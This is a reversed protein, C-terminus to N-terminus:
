NQGFVLESLEEDDLLSHKIFASFASEPSSLVRMSEIAAQKKQPTADPSIYDRINNNLFILQDFIKRRLFSGTIGKNITHESNYIRNLLNATLLTKDDNKLAEIEVKKSYPTHPPLMKILLSVDLTPDCCDLLNDFGTLKINNCRSCSLYLNNWDFKKNDDGQHSRFHEINIDHPEKTECLYCKKHFCALLSNYVDEGDYKIKAELSSPIETPRTVKFM